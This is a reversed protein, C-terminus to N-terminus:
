LRDLKTELLAEAGLIAFRKLNQARALSPLQAKHFAVPHQTSHRRLVKFRRIRNLLLLKPVPAIPHLSGAAGDDLLIAMTDVNQVPERIRMRHLGHARTPKAEWDRVAIPIGVM